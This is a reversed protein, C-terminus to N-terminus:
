QLMPSVHTPLLVTLIQEHYVPKLATLCDLPVVYPMAKHHAPKIYNQLSIFCAHSGLNQAKEARGLPRLLIKNLSQQKLNRVLHQFNVSLDEWYNKTKITSGQLQTSSLELPSCTSVTIVKGWGRTM